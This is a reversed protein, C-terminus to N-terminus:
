APSPWAGQDGLLPLAVVPYERNAVGVAFREATHDGVGYWGIM